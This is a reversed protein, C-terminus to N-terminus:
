AWSFAARALAPSVSTSQTETATRQLGSRARLLDDSSVTKTALRAAQHWAEGYEGGGRIMAKAYVGGREYWALASPSFDPFAGEISGYAGYATV